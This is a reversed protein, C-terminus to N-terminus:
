RAEPNADRARRAIEALLTDLDADAVARARPDPRSSVYAADDATVAVPESQGGALVRRITGTPWGLAREMGSMTLGRPDGAQGRELQGVTVVSPGGRAQVQSQTLGLHQRRERLLRGLRALPEETTM